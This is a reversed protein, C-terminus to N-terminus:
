LHHAAYVLTRAHEAVESWVCVIVSCDYSVADSASNRWLLSSACYDGEHDDVQVLPSDGISCVCVYVCSKPFPDGM